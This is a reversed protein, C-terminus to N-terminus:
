GHDEVTADSGPHPLRMSRCISLAPEADYPGAHVDLVQPGEDGDSACAAEGAGGPLQASRLRAQRSPHLLELTLDTGLQHHPRRRAHHERAGALPEEPVRLPGDPRDVRAPVGEVLQRTLRSPGHREPALGRDARVGQGLRECAEVGLLGLHQQPEALAHGLADLLPQGRALEVQAEQVQRDAADVEGRLLEPLLVVQERHGGAMAQRRGIARDGEAVRGALRQHHDVAHGRRRREQGGALIRPARGRM